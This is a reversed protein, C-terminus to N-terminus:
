DLVKVIKGGGLVCDGQYFVVSQGPTIARQKDKFDLKVMDGQMVIDAEALPARYRIKAKVLLPEDLNAISVFNCEGAFLSRKFLGAEEGLCLRNNDLDLRLVYLPKGGAIGLGKRQGITYFALGRHHGLVKGKEDVVEGPQCDIRGELFERYDSSIFCIEQSEKETAAPVGYAKAMKLVESKHLDGLPFITRALQDQKLGYLFYSQDKSDDLGRKLLFRGQQSRQIRAYHGTAIKTCGLQLAADMLAAFKIYRNCEVCPNPTQGRSYASCFYDIVREYFLQRMDITKHEIGLQHATEQAKCAAEEDWNIMTIGLLKHGQERLLLAAVTSDVGGSMLMGIKM